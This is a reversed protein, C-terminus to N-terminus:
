HLLCRRVQVYEVVSNDGLDRNAAVRTAPFANPVVNLVTRRRSNTVSLSSISVPCFLLTLGLLMGLSVPDYECRTQDRLYLMAAEDPRSSVNGM